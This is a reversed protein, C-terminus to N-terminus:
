DSDNAAETAGLHALQQRVLAGDGVHKKLLVAMGAFVDALVDLPYDGLGSAYVLKGVQTTRLARIDNDLQRAKAAALDSAKKARALNREAAAKAAAKEALLAEDTKHAMLNLDEKRDWPWRPWGRPM